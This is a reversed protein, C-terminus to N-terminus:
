RWNVPLSKVHVLGEPVGAEVLCEVMVNCHPQESVDHGLDIIGVGRDLADLATHYRVEGCIIFDIGADACELPSPGSAGTWLCVREVARDPSGWLRPTGGFARACDDRLEGATKGAVTCIQGYGFGPFGPVEELIEGSPTLGLPGSLVQAAKPNADLATHFSIISVGKNLADWIRSGVADATTSAPMIQTPPDLFLPHHTVLVNAGVSEAFAISERTPDLAVAVSTVTATPDGVLMGTRDWSEAAEPPLLEKLTQELEGVLM